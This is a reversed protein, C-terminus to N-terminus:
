CNTDNFVRTTVALLSYRNLDPFAPNFEQYNETSYGIISSSVTVIVLCIECQFNVGRAPRIHVLDAGVFSPEM